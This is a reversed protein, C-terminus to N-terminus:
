WRSPGRASGELSRLAAVTAGSGHLRQHRELHGALGRGSADQRAAATLCGLAIVLIVVFAAWGLVGHRGRPNPLSLHRDADMHPRRRDRDPRGLYPVLSTRLLIAVELASAQPVDVEVELTQRGEVEIGTQPVGDVFVM